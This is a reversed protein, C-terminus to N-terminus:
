HDFENTSLLLKISEVRLERNDLGFRFFRRVIRELSSNDLSKNQMKIKQKTQFENM